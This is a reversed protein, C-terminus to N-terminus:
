FLYEPELIPRFNVEPDSTTFTVIEYVGTTTRMVARTLGLVPAVGVLYSLSRGDELKKHWTVPIEAWGLLINQLGRGLKTMRREFGTPPIIEQDPDIGYSYDYFEYEAWTPLSVALVAFAVFVSVVPVWARKTSGM